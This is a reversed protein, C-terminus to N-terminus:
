ALQALAPDRRALRQYRARAKSLRRRVTIVSRGCRAAIAEENDTGFWFATLLARDNRPLREMVDFARSAVVRADFNVQFVPDEQESLFRGFANRRLRRRRMVCRLINATVSFVWGDLRAPDRVSGIKTLVTVLVEQVLDEREDDSGMVARVHRGIKPAYRAHVDEPTLEALSAIKSGTPFGAPPNTM